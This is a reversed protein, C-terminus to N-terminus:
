VLIWHGKKWDTTVKVGLSITIGPLEARLHKTVEEEVSIFGDEPM